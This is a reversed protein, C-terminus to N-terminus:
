LLFAFHRELFHRVNVVLLLIEIVAMDRCNDLKLEKLLLLRVIDIFLERRCDLIELLLERLRSLRFFAHNLSESIDLSVKLEFLVLEGSQGLELALQLFHDSSSLFQLRLKSTDFCLEFSLISLNGLSAFLVTRSHVLELLLELFM